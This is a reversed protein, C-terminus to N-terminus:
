AKVQYRLTARDAAVRTRLYCVPRDAASYGARTHILLPVGRSIMLKHAEEPNPMRATVGDDFHDPALGASRLIANHASQDQPAALEPHADVLWRPLYTDSLHHPREDTRYLRSHLVLQTEVDVELATALEASAQVLHVSTDASPTKGLQRVSNAWTEDDTAQRLDLASMAWQMRDERRVRKLHGAGGEILGEATLTQLAQRITARGVEFQAGLEEISPLDDAIV